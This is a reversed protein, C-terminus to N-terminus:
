RRELMAIFADTRAVMDSIAAGTEQAPALMRFPGSVQSVPVPFLSIGPERYVPFESTVAKGVLYQALGGEEPWDWTTGNWPPMTTGAVEQEWQVRFQADAAKERYKVFFSTGVIFLLGAAVAIMCAAILDAAM